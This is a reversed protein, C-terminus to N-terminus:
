PLDASQVCFTEGDLSTAPATVLDIHVANISGDARVVPERLIRTKAEIASASCAEIVLKDDTLWHPRAKARTVEAVLVPETLTGGDANELRIRSHDSCCAASGKYEVVAVLKGDPSAYANERQWEGCGPLLLTAALICSRYRSM